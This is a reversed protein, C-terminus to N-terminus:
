RRFAAVTYVDGLLGYRPARYYPHNVDVKVFAGAMAVIDPEEVALFHAGEDRRYDRSYADLAAADFNDALLWAYGAEEFLARKLQVIRPLDAESARRLLM